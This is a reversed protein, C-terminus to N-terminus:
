HKELGAQGLQDIVPLLVAYGVGLEGLDIDIKQLQRDLDRLINREVLGIITKSEATPRMMLQRLGAFIPAERALVDMVSSSNLVQLGVVDLAVLVSFFDETKEPDQVVVILLNM